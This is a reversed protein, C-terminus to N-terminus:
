NGYYPSPTNILTIAPALLITNGIAVKSQRDVTYFHVANDTDPDQELIPNVKQVLIM